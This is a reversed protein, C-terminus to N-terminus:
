GGGEPTVAPEGDAAADHDALRAALDAKAGGVPLGRAKAEDRLAAQTMSGYDPAVPVAEAAPEPQIEVLNSAGAYGGEAVMAPADGAAGDGVPEAVLQAPEAEVAPATEPAAAPAEAVPAQEWASSAGGSTAKPVLDEVGEYRPSVTGCHPCVPLGVAYVGDCGLCGMLEM